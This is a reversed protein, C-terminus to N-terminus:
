EGLPLARLAKFTAKGKGGIAKWAAHFSDGITVLNKGWEMTEEVHAMFRDLKAADAAWPYKKLEAKLAAYFAKKTM